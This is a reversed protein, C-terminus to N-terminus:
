GRANLARKLDNFESWDVQEDRQLRGVVIGPSVGQSDAFDIITKRNIPNAALWTRFAVEPLLTERAFRNAPGEEQNRAERDGLEEAVEQRRGGELIHGIEHFLSFWFQDDTGHRLTLIIWPNGRIWRVAGSTPAGAVGQVLILGVGASSLTEKAQDIAAGPVLARSLSRLSVLVHELRARRFSPLRENEADREAARLWVAISYPSVNHRESIRYNAAIQGWSQDWGAPNSVGFFALLDAVQQPPSSGRRLIGRAVLDRLPFRKLWDDYAQLEAHDQARARAERYRAELGLWLGASIGLARELQIATEPTVAAKGTAIESITKLPRAMRRGLEAQTM